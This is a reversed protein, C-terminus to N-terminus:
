HLAGAQRRQRKLTACLLCALGMAGAAPLPNNIVRLRADFHSLSAVAGEAAAFAEATFTYRGPLLLGVDVIASPLPQLSGLLHRYDFYTTGNEGTLRLAFGSAPAPGADGFGTARLRYVATDDTPVEFTLAFLSVATGVFGDRYDEYPLYPDFTDSSPNFDDVIDIDGFGPPFDRTTDVRASGVARIDLNDGPFRFRSLQRAAALQGQFSTGSREVFRSGTTAAAEDSETVGSIGLSTSVLREQAVVVVRAAFASSSAALLGLPLLLAIEVATVPRPM